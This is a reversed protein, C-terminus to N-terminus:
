AVPKRARRPTTTVGLKKLRSRLTNPHVGLVQAAGGRGAIQGGCAELVATVHAREAEELTAFRGPSADTGVNVGLSM